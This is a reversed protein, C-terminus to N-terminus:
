AVMKLKDKSITTATQGNILSNLTNPDTFIYKFIYYIFVIVLITLIISVPNM